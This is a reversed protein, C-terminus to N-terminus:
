LTNDLFRRLLEEDTNPASGVDTKGGRANMREGSLLHSAFTSKAMGAWGPIVDYANDGIIMSNELIEAGLEELSVKSKVKGVIQHADNAGTVETVVHVAEVVKYSRGEALLILDSASLDVKGEIGWQDLAAQPFFIRNQM